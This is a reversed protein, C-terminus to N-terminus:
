CHGEIQRQRTRSIGAGHQPHRRFRVADHLGSIRQITGYQRRFGMQVLTRRIDLSGDYHVATGEHPGFLM